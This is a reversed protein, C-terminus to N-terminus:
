GFVGVVALLILLLLVVILLGALDSHTYGGENKKM